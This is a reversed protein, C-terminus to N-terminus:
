NSSVQRPGPTKKGSSGTLTQDLGQAIGAAERGAEMQQCVFNAGPGDLHQPGLFSKTRTPDRAKQGAARSLKWRFRPRDWNLERARGFAAWTVVWTHFSASLRRLLQTALQGLLEDLIKGVM